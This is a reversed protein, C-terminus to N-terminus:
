KNERQQEVHKYALYLKDESSTCSCVLAMMAFGIILKKM